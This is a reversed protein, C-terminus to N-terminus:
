KLDEMALLHYRQGYSFFFKRASTMVQEADEDSKIKVMVAHHGQRALDVYKVVTAGETGVSPLPIADSQGNVHGIESLITQPDLLMAEEDGDRGADVERAVEEAALADPFLIFLYGKPYFTGGMTVMDKTLEFKKM